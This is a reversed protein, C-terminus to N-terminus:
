RPNCLTLSRRGVSNIANIMTVKRHLDVRSLGHPLDARSLNRHLDIRQM